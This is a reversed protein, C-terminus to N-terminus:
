LSLNWKMWVSWQEASRNHDVMEYGGGVSVNYPLMQWNGQFGLSAFVKHTLRSPHAASKLNLNSAQVLVPAADAV